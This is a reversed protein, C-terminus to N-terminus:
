SAEKSNQNWQIIDSNEQNMRFPNANNRSNYSINNVFQNVPMITNTAADYDFVKWYVGQVNTPVPYTACLDEGKYVKVMAGSNSMETSSSNGGNTYDHVYFSYIGTSNMTYVTTTEPGYSDTDDRDLNVYEINNQTYSRAGFYVHFNNNGDATPGVLHSDLDRPTEGWTLVIRLEGSPLSESDPLITNNQNMATGSIVYINFYNKLYGEKSLEVTYNGLPLQAQYNGNVDTFTTMVVDGSISNWEKRINVVVGPVKLGNLANTIVGGAVGEEDEEGEGVMLFTEIYKEENVAITELSKFSIYGVKSIKITYTGANVDISYQGNDDSRVTKILRNNSADFLQIKADKIFSNRNEAEAVRGKIVASGHTCELVYRFNEYHSNFTIPSNQENFIEWKYELDLWKGIKTGELASLELYWYAFADICLMINERITATGKAAGGTYLTFNILDFSYCIELLGKLEPGLKGTAELMPLEFSSKLNRIPRLRNNLVQVGAEGEVKFVANIEGEATVKVGIIVYITVGTVGAVPIKGLEILRDKKPGYEREVYTRYVKGTAQTETKLKLFVNNIDAGSLGVNVDAKYSVQPLAFKVEGAIEVDYGLDTKFTLSVAGLNPSSGEVDINIRSQPRDNQVVEVEVGESPIFGNMDPKGVGQVDLYKITEEMTPDETVVIVKNGEIKVEVVKYPRETPLVFIDGKKLNKTIDNLEFEIANEKVEFFVDENIKIVGDKYEIYSDYNEDVETSKYIAKIGEVMYNFESETLERNPYFKNNQLNIIETTVAVEVEKKFTIESVDECVIEQTPVFGLIKVATTAAFERTASNDPRFYIGDEDLIGYVMAYIIDEEFEHGLIDDFKIDINEIDIPQQNKVGSLEVLKSIWEGRSIARGSPEVIQNTLKYTVIAKVEYTKNKIEISEKITLEKSNNSNAKAIIPGQIISVVMTLALFLAISKKNDKSKKKSLLVYAIICVSIVALLFAITNDDGTKATGDNKTTDNTNNSPKNNSDNTGTNSDVKKIKAVFEHTVTEGGQLTGIEKTLKEGSKLELGEPLFSQLKIEDIPRVGINTIQIKGKVLETDEQVEELQLRVKLNNEEETKAFTTIQTFLLMFILGIMVLLSKSKKM